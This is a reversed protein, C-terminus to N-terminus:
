AAADMRALARALKSRYRAQMRRLGRRDPGPAMAEAATAAWGMRLALYAAEYFALREVLRPDGAQRAAEAAFEAAAADSLGWETSFGAVDWALDTPGPLFRDDGHDVGDTKFVTTDARVWEFPGMRGDIEVKQVGKLRARWPGLRPRAEAGLALEVNREVMAFLEDGHVQEGAGGQRGLWGLYAAARRPGEPDRRRLPRGALFPTSLFGHRLGHPEPAFGAEALAEARRLRERGRRGLGAFKSLVAGDQSLYKRRERHPAVPPRARGCVLDRWLGGSLDRGGELEPILIPRMEDFGVHLKRHLSWRRQAPEAGLERGPKMVSPLLVIQEDRAGLRNLAEAVSAFSSGTPGPGEDVILFWHGAKARRELASALAPNLRVTRESPEGRPRLTLSDVERSAAEIEAAVVASLSAGIGRIGIVTTPLDISSLVFRRTAELYTEPYLADWAYGEPTKVAVRQPGGAKLGRELARRASAALAKVRDPERRAARFLRGAALSVARWAAERPGYGDRNLNLRDVIAAELVGAEILAETTLERRSGRGEAIDQFIRDLADAEAQVGAPREADRFVLM